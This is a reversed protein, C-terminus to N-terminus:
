VAKQSRISVLHRVHGCGLGLRIQDKVVSPERGEVARVGDRGGDCDLVAAEDRDAVVRVHHRERAARRLDDIELAAARQRAQDVVVAVHNAAAQVVVHFQTPVAHRRERNCHVHELPLHRDRGRRLPYAHDAAEGLVLEGLLAQRRDVFEVRGRGIRRHEDQVQVIARQQVRGRQARDAVAAVRRVRGAALDLAIAEAPRGAQQDRARVHGHQVLREFPGRLEAVVVLHIRHPMEHALQVPEAHRARDVRAAIELGKRVVVARDQCERPAAFHGHADRVAQEHLMRPPLEVVVRAPHRERFGAVAVREQPHVAGALQQHIRGGIEAIKEFRAGIQRRRQLGFQGRHHPQQHPVAPREPQMRGVVFRDAAEQVHEFGHVALCREVAQAPEEIVALRDGIRVDRADGREAAAHRDLVPHRELALVEDRTVARLGRHARRRDARHQRGPQRDARAGICRADRAVVREHRQVPHHRPARDAARRQIRLAVPEAPHFRQAAIRDAARPKGALVVALARQHGAM